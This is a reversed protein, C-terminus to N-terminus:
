RIIQGPSTIIYDYTGSRNLSSGMYRIPGGVPAIVPNSGNPIVRHLSIRNHSSGVEFGRMMSVSRISIVSNGRYTSILRTALTSILLASDTRCPTRSTHAAGGYYFITPNTLGQTLRRVNNYITEERANAGETTRRMDETTVPDVLVVRFGARRAGILVREITTYNRERELDELPLTLLRSSDPRLEIAVVVSRRQEPTLNRSYTQFFDIISDGMRQSLLHEEGICVFLPGNSTQRRRENIINILGQTVPTGEQELYQRISQPVSEDNRSTRGPQELQNPHPAQRREANGLRAAGVTLLGGAALAGLFIIPLILIFM